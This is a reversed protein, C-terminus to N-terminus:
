RLSPAAWRLLAYGGLASAISGMLIGGKAEEVLLASGPFALAGIFLSMTFGIGCLMAMGYIQAWNAGNPREAIGLRAAAWVSGFIGLQKGLFLGLAVGMPLPDLLASFVQANLALGANAFGFLPVILYASWPHVGHELKHLPSDEADPAGPTCRIPVTMAALVGAVTAHVGSLLMLYWLLVFGILYPILLKVGARNLGFMVVLVAAAGALAAMDLGQTYILAIIAVAGMDDVIAVATLFLKLSAPARNGLLALVGIAFAIDTAAPIAWGNALEPQGGTVLLYVLAPVVMGAVAAIIPLRRREWTSLGGDLFERKIELGVLLFFIAMLGDNIWLHVTMPGLKPTLEPGFQAHILDHYLHGGGGPLNALVMALTAAIMLLVASGAQSALFERLVSPRPKTM